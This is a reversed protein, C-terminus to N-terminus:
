AIVYDDPNSSARGSGTSSSRGPRCRSSRAKRTRTTATPSPPIPGCWSASRRSHVARVYEDHADKRVEITEAGSSLVRHIADMAYHVQFDSHFFLGAGHALNTGPGYVCFLNPFNPVTIGFYAAPSTAGSSGSPSATAASRGGHPRPVRQAPLRHRLLHRGGPPAHRRRNGCRGPRDARNRHARARREAQDPVAAVFRQGAPGAQGDGSLRAHVERDPRSARLAHLADLGVPPGTAARQQRQGLHQQRGPVRPGTPVAGYRRRHGPVDDPVPVMPRLVPLHRQAWRDGPPVKAHYM